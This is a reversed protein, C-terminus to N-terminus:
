TAEPGCLGTYIETMFMTFLKYRAITGQIKLMEGLVAVDKFGAEDFRKLLRDMEPVEPVKPPVIFQKTTAEGKFEDQFDRMWNARNISIYKVQVDRLSKENSRILKLCFMRLNKCIATNKCLQQDILNMFQHLGDLREYEDNPLTLCYAYYTLFQRCFGLFAATQIGNFQEQDLKVLIEEFSPYLSHLCFSWFPPGDIDEDPQPEDINRCFYDVLVVSM